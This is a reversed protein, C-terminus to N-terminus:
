VSRITRALRRAAAVSLGHDDCLARVALPLSSASRVASVLASEGEPLGIEARLLTAIAHLEDVDRKTAVRAISCPTTTGDRRRVVLMRRRRREGGSGPAVVVDVAVIDDFPIEGDLRGTIRREHWRLSRSSVDAVATWWRGLAAGGVLFFMGVGAPWSVADPTIPGRLVNVVAWVLMVTGATLGVVPAAVPRCTLVLRDLSDRDADLRAM